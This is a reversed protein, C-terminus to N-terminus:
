KISALIEEAVQEAIVRGVNVRQQPVNTRTAFLDKSNKQVGGADKGGGYEAPMFIKPVGRSGYVIRRGLRQEIDAVDVPDGSNTIGTVAVAAIDADWGIKRLADSLPLLGSGTQLVDTVILVKKGEDFALKNRVSSLYTELAERKAITERENTIRRSGAVFRVIPPAIEAKECLKKVVHAAIIAPIRGAADDGLILNYRGAQLDAKLTLLISELPGKLERIAEQEVEPTERSHVRERKDGSRPIEM